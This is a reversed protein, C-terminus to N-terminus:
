VPEQGLMKDLAVLAVSWATRSVQYAQWWQTLIEAPNGGLQGSQNDGGDPSVVNWAELALRLTAQDEHALEVEAAASLVPPLMALAAVQARRRPLINDSYQPLDLNLMSLLWGLRAVEPLGAHPDTLVAEIRVSNYNMHAAGGGGLFPQVLIVAGNEALLVPETRRAVGAMLGPGRTEWQERLPAARLALEDLLGPMAATMANELDTLVGILRKDVLTTARTRGVIKTLVVTALEQNSDIDASLPMVHRLFEHVPISYAVLTKRLKEAPEALAASLTADVGQRQNLLAAAIHFSSASASAIWRLRLPM